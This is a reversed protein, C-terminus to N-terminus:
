EVVSEMVTLINIDVPCARSCRGCGVCEFGDGFRSYHFKHYFRHKLREIREERQINNGAIRTFEKLQCSSHQKEARKNFHNFMFCYCTPCVETCRTCSLCREAEEAWVPNDYEENLKKNVTEVHLRKREPIHIKLKQQTKKFDPTLFKAGKDTIVHVLFGNDGKELFLDYNIPSHTGMSSCFCYKDGKECDLGIILTNERKSKYYIDDKFKTDLLKLAHLDCPKLGIIIQPISNVVPNFDSTYLVENDPLLFNKFSFETQVFDFDFTGSFNEFFHKGKRKVPVIVSWKESLLNILKRFSENDVFYNNEFSFDM